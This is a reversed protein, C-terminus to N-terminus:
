FYTRAIDYFDVGGAAGREEELEKVVKLLIDGLRAVYRKGVDRDMVLKGAGWGFPLVFRRKGDPDIVVIADMARNKTDNPRLLGLKLFHNPPTGKAEVAPFSTPLSPILTSTVSSMANTVILPQLTPSTSLLSPLISSDVERNTVASAIFNSLTLHKTCVM